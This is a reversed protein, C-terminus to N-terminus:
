SSEVNVWDELEKVVDMREMEKLLEILKGVTAEEYSKRSWAKLIKDTPNPFRQDMVETYDREFGVKQALGRIDNFTLDRVKLKTCFKGYM